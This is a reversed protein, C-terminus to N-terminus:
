TASTVCLGALHIVLSVLQKFALVVDKLRFYSTRTVTFVTYLVSPCYLSILFICKMGCRVWTNDLGCKMSRVNLSACLFKRRQGTLYKYFSCGQLLVQVPYNMLGKPIESSPQAVVLVSVASLLM